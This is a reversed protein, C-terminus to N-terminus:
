MNKSKFNKDMTDVFRYLDFVPQIKEEIDSLYKVTKDWMEEAKSTRGELKYMFAKSLLIMAEAHYKLYKWSTSIVISNNNLNKDIIPMFENVFYNIKMYSESSIESENIEGRLYPPNFIKSVKELYDICQMGDKGFASIFYEKLIESYGLEKNWLTKGLIYAPHGSPFFARQVQCSMYGNLKIGELKKIDTQLIKSSQMLGLDNFFDIYLHYDYDFSDGSFIEQWKKLFSLNEEVSKPFSLRNRKYHPIDKQTCNLDFSKSYSRTIPAFMLIFRDPNKITEIQPPWLLDVYILFVIKTSINEKELITDLENLLMVYFDSPRKQCCEDCECHNNSCDALWFHLIEINTHEKLYELIGTVMISRVKSNSYCLNTNLPVGEWLDRKGNVKALYGKTEPSVDVEVKDWGLGPMGFPECTWGHGVAHYILNRKKIEDEALQVYEKAKDITFLEAKKSTNNRHSYWREFFTYAERFQIFYANYGVKPLWDIIDLINEISNAGEICIGRHRYSPKEVLNVTLKKISIKPIIEGDSGPRVWRCGLETLFRYVSLLISRPNIGSIIGNGSSIRIYLCDDFQSEIVSIQESLGFNSMEGIWLGDEENYVDCNEVVIEEDILVKLYKELENAAFNLTINKGIKKIVISKGKHKQSM